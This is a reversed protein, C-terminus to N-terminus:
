LHIGGRDGDAVMAGFIDSVCDIDAVWEKATPKHMARNGVPPEPLGRNIGVDTELKKNLMVFDVGDVPASLARHRPAFTSDSSEPSKSHGHQGPGDKKLDLEAKLSMEPSM